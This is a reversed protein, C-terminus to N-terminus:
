ENEEEIKRISYLDEGKKSKGSHILDPSSILANLVLKFQDTDASHYKAFKEIDRRKFAESRHRLLKLARGPEEIIREGNEKRIRQHDELRDFGRTSKLFDGDMLLYKARFGIHTQPELDIGREAHSRHDVRVDFGAEELMQNQIDAWEKRWSFLLEKKNWETNKAVFGDNSIVRTTLMITAYPNSDRAIISLDAVMGRNVFNSQAFEQIIKIQQVLNLERPFAVEVERALRADKRKEAKEVENWLIERNKFREPANEPILIKSYALDKFHSYNHTKGLREDYLSERARWAASAVASKGKGRGITRVQFHYIAM